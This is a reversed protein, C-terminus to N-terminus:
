ERAIGQHWGLSKLARYAYWQNYWHRSTRIRELIEPIWTEDGRKGAAQFAMSVVNPHPDDLLSLIQKRTEANRSLGIAKTLWYREPVHPSALSRAYNPYNGIELGREVITRLGETRQRWADSALAQAPGSAPSGRGVYVTALLGLGVVLCILSAILACREPIATLFSAAGYAVTFCLIYILVPFGVLLCLFTAQRFPGDTDVAASFRRLPERPRAIFQDTPVKLVTRNKHRWELIKDTDLIELDPRIGDSLPLYDHRELVARVRQRREAPRIEQVSCTKLTKQELPKFVQAPYLTYRYYFDDVAQGVPNSLLLYDRINMFLLRDALGAWALTLLIITLVPAVRGFRGEDRGPGPTWRVTAAFVIPPTLLFYATAMAAGGSRNLLIVLATWFLAFLVLAARSRKMLSVWTWGLSAALISLGAGLTLTFFLGGFIAPGWDLLRGMIQENPVPLYGADSIALLTRYLDRNSLHVQITAPVQTVLLGLLVPRAM